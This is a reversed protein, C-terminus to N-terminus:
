REGTEHPLPPYGQWPCLKGKMEQNDKHKCKGSGWGFWYCEDIPIPREAERWPLYYKCGEAGKTGKRSVM